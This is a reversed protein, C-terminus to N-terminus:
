PVPVRYINRHTAVKMYAYIRPEPGPFVVGDSVLQTGALALVARKSKFGSDTLTPLSVGPKLPIAYTSGELRLYLFRGNPSWSMLPPEPGNDFSPPPYCRCVFRPSGGDVPYVELVERNEPKPGEAAAVWRGDPSVSFPFLMPTTTIKRADSGDAKARYLFYSGNEEASFIIEDGPGFFAVGSNASTVRTPTTRGDLAALWVPNDGQENVAVFLVRRGDASISYHKMKFDPVLAQRQGSTLDTVWLAGRLLAPGGGSRVLYYVKKADPSVTPFFAFGESTIQRDSRGDHIWITSQRSGISTVVSRGDPAFHIGEEESVGFTVQQPDGDPYRQRWIHFGNGDDATMYMWKGDPSWAADTCKSTAPGVTKGRSSGDFPVLRCPLWLDGSMEIVLLQKGDPSVYSRHAMGKEPPLFVTRLAARSETSSVISM